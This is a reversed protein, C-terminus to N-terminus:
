ENGKFLLQLDYGAQNLISVANLFLDAETAWIDLEKESAKLRVRNVELATVQKLEYLRQKEALREKEYLLNSRVMELKEALMDRRLFLNGMTDIVLRRSSALNAAAINIMNQDIERRHKVKGGNYVPISLGVAVVPEIYADEDFLDSFSAGFGDDVIDDTSRSPPYKPSFSLSVSLDSSFERGNIVATHRAEEVALTKDLVDPNASVAREFLQEDGEDIKVAPIVAALTMESLTGTIGLSRALNQEAELLTYKLELRAENMSELTLEEEWVQRSTISGQRARLRSLNLLKETLVINADQNLLQNRLMFTSKYTTFAKLLGANKAAKEQLSARSVPIDGYLAQRAPYISLDIVKGNTFVPQSVSFTLKPSQDITTEDGRSLITMSDSVGASLAGDTPLVQTLDVSASVGHTTLDTIERDNLLDEYRSNSFTYVPAQSATIQPRTGALLLERNHFSSDLSERTIQVTLDNELVLPVISSLSIEDASLSVGAAACFFLACICKRM